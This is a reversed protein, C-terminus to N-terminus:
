SSINLGIVLLVIMFGSDPTVQYVFLKDSLAGVPMMCENESPPWVVSQPFVIVDLPLHNMLKLLFGVHM